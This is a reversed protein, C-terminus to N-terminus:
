RSIPSWAPDRVDGESAPLTYNAGGDASIVTLVSQGNQQTAYILMRGNPSVSPSEDLKTRTLVTEEGTELNTRAIHFAGERQHVYYVYKGDASPRPRANYRSGFTIRRPEAGESEMYYVQPGGSRDSTFFIGRGRHDWTAETDISWHNTLRKLSRSAIDMKYIEANGDKSLTLLLSRGDPSWAPASNLGKFEAIRTRKGSSLEHLYIAPKSSEFSVYALQKGDPSWAPSLIPERSDLRIRARKGDVDSVQLKYLPKGNVNQLTVYALRTSFAGPVGTIAEYVKDSIHHALTRINSVPASATEGLLRSERNVDFLEYRASVRDGERQMQGVLVYRQGLMRWDRFFVEDGKSPLSLMKEPPLPRFEGSMALDDRIITSVNDGAPMAGSEAFPVVSLPIAADAGETIRILLEASAPGASVLLALVLSWLGSKLARFRHTNIRNSM